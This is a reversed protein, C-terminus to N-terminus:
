AADDGAGELRDLWAPLVYADQSWLHLGVGLRMACRKIADSAALKARAGNNEANGAHEVDGVEVITTPRGDVECTLALLCGTITGDPDRILERVDTDFPGVIALLRQTIVDHSVFDGGRGGPKREVFREPLPTALQRLQTV